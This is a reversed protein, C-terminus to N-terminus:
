SQSHHSATIMGSLVPRTSLEFVPSTNTFLGPCTNSCTRIRLRLSQLLFRGADYLDISVRTPGDGAYATVLIRCSKAESVSGNGLRSYRYTMARDASVVASLRLEPRFHRYQFSSTWRMPVHYLHTQLCQGDITAVFSVPRVYIFILHPIYISTTISANFGFVTPFILKNYSHRLSSPTPAIYTDM